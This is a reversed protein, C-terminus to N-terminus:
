VIMTLLDITHVATQILSATKAHYAHGNSTGKWSVGCAGNRQRRVDLGLMRCRLRMRAVRYAMTAEPTSM